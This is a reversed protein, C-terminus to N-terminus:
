SAPAFFQVVGGGNQGKLATTCNKANCMFGEVGINRSTPISDRGGSGRFLPSFCVQAGLDVDFQQTAVGVEEFCLVSVAQVPQYVTLLPTAVGM